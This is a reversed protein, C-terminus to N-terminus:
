LAPIHVRALTGRPTNPALDLRGRPGYEARLRERVHALGYGRPADRRGSAPEVVSAEAGLGCGTDAVTVVLEEGRLEAGVHISAPGVQPSIGHQIANEVLPQLLMPPLTRGRLEDPLQASWALREGMRVSMLSLYARILTFEAELSTREVRTAALTQRLFAILADIMSRAAAPNEDVLERLNALTNFLMHPELQARLLRLEAEAALRQAEIRALTEARLRERAWLGFGILSTAIVTAVWAGLQSTEANLLASDSGYLWVALSRGVLYGLPASVVLNLVLGSPGPLRELWPLRGVFIAVTTISLGVLQSQVLITSFSIPRPWFLWLVMAVGTNILAVWAYLRGPPVRDSSCDAPM